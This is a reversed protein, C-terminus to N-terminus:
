ESPVDKRKKPYVRKRATDVAAEIYGELGEVIRWCSEGLILDPTADIFTVQHGQSALDLLTQNELLSAEAWIVLPKPTKGM